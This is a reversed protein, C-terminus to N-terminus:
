TVSFICTYNLYLVSNFHQYSYAIVIYVVICATTKHNYFSSLSSSAHITLTLHTSVFFLPLLLLYTTKKHYMYM